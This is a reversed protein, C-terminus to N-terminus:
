VGYKGGESVAGRIEAATGYINSPQVQNEIPTPGSVGRAHAHRLKTGTAFPKDGVTPNGGPVELAHVHIEITARGTHSGEGGGGGGSM